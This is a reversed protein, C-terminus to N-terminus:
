AKYEGASKGDQKIMIGHKVGYKADMFDRLEKAEEITFCTRSGANLNMTGRKTMRNVTYTTAM